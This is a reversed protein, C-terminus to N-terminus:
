EASVPGVFFPGPITAYNRSDSDAHPHTDERCVSTRDRFGDDVDLITNYSMGTANECFRAFQIEKELTARFNECDTELHGM